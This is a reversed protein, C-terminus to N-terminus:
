FIIEFQKLNTILFIFMLIKFFIWSSVKEAGKHCTADVATAVTNAFNINNKHVTINYIHVSAATRYAVVYLVTCSYYLSIFISDYRGKGGKRKTHRVSQNKKCNIKKTLLRVLVAYNLRTIGQCSIDTCERPV